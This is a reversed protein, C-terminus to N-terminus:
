TCWYKDWVVLSFHCVMWVFVQEQSQSTILFQYNKILYISLKGLIFAEDMKCLLGVRVPMVEKIGM